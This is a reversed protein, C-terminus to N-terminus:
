LREIAASNSKILAEKEKIMNKISVPKPRRVKSKLKACGKSFTCTCWSEGSNHEHQSCCFIFTTFAMGNFSHKLVRTIVVQKWTIHRPIQKGDTIPKKLDQMQDVVKAFCTLTMNIM